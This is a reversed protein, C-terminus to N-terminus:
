EPTVHQKLHSIVTKPLDLPKAKVHIPNQISELKLKPDIKHKIKDLLPVDKPRKSLKIAEEKTM